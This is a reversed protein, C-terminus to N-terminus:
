TASRRAAPRKKPPLKRPPEEEDDEDEPEEDVMAKVGAASAERMAASESKADREDADIEADIQALVDDDLNSLMKRALRKKIESNALSGLGLQTVTAIADTIEQTMQEADFREPATVRIAALVTEDATGGSLVRAVIRLSEQEANAIGSAFDAISRNATEFEFARSAASQAQGTTPRTFEMRGATIM